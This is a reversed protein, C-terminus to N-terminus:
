SVATKLESVDMLWHTMQATDSAGICALRSLQALQATLLNLGTVLVLWLQTRLLHKSHSCPSRPLGLLLKDSVHSGDEQEWFIPTPLLFKGIIEYSDGKSERSKGGGVM